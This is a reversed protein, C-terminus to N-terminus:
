APHTTARLHTVLFWEPTASRMFKLRTRAANAAAADRRKEQAVALQRVVLPNQADTALEDVANELDGQAFLLYGRASEYCNEVVLDRTKAALAELKHIIETAADSQSALSLIRAQERWVSALAIQHDPEAMGTTAAQLYTELLRLLELEEKSNTALLARGYGIEFQAYPEKALRAKGALVELEKRGQEPEDEWFSVLANQFEAHFEDRPTEAFTLAKAYQDRATSFDGMLTFTDALGIRAITSTPDLQLAEAYHEVAARDDGAYRLVAGLSAEPNPQGPQLEAYRQLMRIANAPDPTGTEMYAHGLLNFVPAFDPYVKRAAELASRARDYDQQLYLWESTLYLVHQDKPYRALLDNMSTIAHLLDGEQVGTLWRALLQEDPTTQPALSKARSLAAADPTGRRAVFSLFAYALAFQPDEETAHRAHVIADDLLANEYKDIALELFRRAQESHTSVRITGFLRQPEGSQAAAFPGLVVCLLLFILPAAPRKM